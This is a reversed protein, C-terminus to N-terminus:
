FALESFSTILWLFNELDLFPIHSQTTPLFFSCLFSAWKWCKHCNGPFCSPCSCCKSPKLSDLHLPYLPITGGKQSPSQLLVLGVYCLWACHPYACRHVHTQVFPPRLYQGSMLTQKEHTATLPAPTARLSFIKKTQKKPGCQPM